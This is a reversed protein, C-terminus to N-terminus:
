YNKVNLERNLFLQHPKQRRLSSGQGLAFSGSTVGHPLLNGPMDPERSTHLYPPELPSFTARGLLTAQIPGQSLFLVGSSSSCACFWYFHDSLVQM